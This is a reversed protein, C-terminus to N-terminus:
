ESDKGRKSAPKAEQLAAVPQYADPLEPAPEYETGDETVLVFAFRTPDTFRKDVAFLEQGDATVFPFGKQALRADDQADAEAQMAERGKRLLEDAQEQASSVHRDPNMPEM